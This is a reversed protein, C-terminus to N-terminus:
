LEILSVGKQKAYHVTYFTGGSKRRLYCVLVDCNDVLYRDRLHMCGEFYSPAFVVSGSCRRLIDEYRRKNSMSYGDAQNECPICALLEVGYGDKYQLVSEAAALDFGTAMGCYFTRTGNLILNYIVKDLLNYDFSSELIRHGSFACKKQM